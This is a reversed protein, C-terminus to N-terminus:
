KKGEVKKDESMKRTTLMFNSLEDRDKEKIKDTGNASINPTRQNIL